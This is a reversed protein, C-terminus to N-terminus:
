NAKAREDIPRYISPVIARRLRLNNYTRHALQLGPVTARLAPSLSHMLDKTLQAGLAVAPWSLHSGLFGEITGHYKAVIGAYGAFGGLSALGKSSIAVRGNESDFSFQTM